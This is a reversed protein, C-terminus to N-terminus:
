ATTWAISPRRSHPSTATHRRCCCRCRRTFPSGSPRAAKPVRRCPPELWRTAHVLPQRGRGGVCQGDHARLVRARRRGPRRGAPRGSPGHRGYVGRAALALRGAHARGSRRRGSADPHLKFEYAAQIAGLQDADLRAGPALWTLRELRTQYSCAYAQWGLLYGDGLAMLAKMTQTRLYRREEAGLVAPATFPGRLGTLLGAMRNMLLQICEMPALDGAAYRPLTELVAPDGWLVRHGYRLDFHALSLPLAPDVRAWQTFHVFDLGFDAALTRGLQALDATPDDPGLVLVDYDNVPRLRGAEDTMVGGEGRGFSGMLVIAEVAPLAARTQDVLRALQRSVLHEAAPDPHPTFVLPRTPALPGVTPGATSLGLARRTHAYVATPAVLGLTGPMAPGSPRALFFSQNDPCDPHYGHM